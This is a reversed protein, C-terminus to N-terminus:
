LPRRLAALMAAKDGARMLAEGVLAADAGSRRIRDADEPTAVGSEAVFLCGAPVKDRLRAANGVNVSFDKLNRNNVGIIGAGCAVARRIEEEDHAETLAALGLERCLALDEELERDGLIACILLVADAGMVRAQRIQYASVTFDKRLMPLSVRDRIERFIQDSGLFYEPETLCSICDAGAREYDAAIKLYPFDPSILGKSPSAKKIECILSIGPKKLASLFAEGNGRGLMRAQERLAAEPIEAQGALVRKRALDALKDLITM